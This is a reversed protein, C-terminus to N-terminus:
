SIKLDNAVVKRKFTVIVKQPINKASEIVNSSLVHASFDLPIPKRAIPRVIYVSSYHSYRERVKQEGQITM